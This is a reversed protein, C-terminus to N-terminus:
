VGGMRRLCASCRRPKYRENRWRRCGSNVVATSALNFDVAIRATLPYQEQDVQCPSIDIIGNIDFRVNPFQELFVSQRTKRPHEKSWQEVIAIEREFEEDTEEPSVCCGIDGLPCKVCGIDFSNCMRREEKLFELADM